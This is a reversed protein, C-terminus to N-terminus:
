PKASQLFHHFTFPKTRRIGPLPVAHTQFSFDFMWDCWSVLSSSQSTAGFVFPSSFSVPVGGTASSPSPKTGPQGSSGLSFVTGQPKTSPPGSYGLSLGTEKPSHALSPKFPSPAVTQSTLPTSALPPRGATTQTSIVPKSSPPSSSLLSLPFPMVVGNGSDSPKSISFLNLQGEARRVGSSAVGGGAPPPAGWSITHGSSGSVSPPPALSPPPLSPPPPSPPPPSSPPSHSTVPTPQSDLYTSSDQPTLALVHAL